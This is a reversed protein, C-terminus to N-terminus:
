GVITEQLEVITGEKIGYYETLKHTGGVEGGLKQGISDDWFGKENLISFADNVKEKTHAVSDAETIVEYYVVTGVLMKYKAM